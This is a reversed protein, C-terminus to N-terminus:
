SSPTPRPTLADALVRVALAEPTTHALEAAADIADALRRDPHLTLTRRDGYALEGLGGRPM